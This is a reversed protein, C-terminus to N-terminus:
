AQIEAEVAALMQEARALHLREVMQGQVRIAGRAANEPAAFAEVVARAWAAQEPSPSFAHNCPAVQNPHILTKGDFGFAAAQRCEAEFGAPDELANYVGDLAAIGYARAAAVTLTLAAQIPARDATMAAGMEKCLDNGGVVLAALRTDAAMGAIADLNFLSRCTEVMAWLRTPEPAGDLRSNYRALDGADAIKPVLVADPAARSLAELDDDGWPTDLGNIRVVVERRGFGGEGLAAIVQARATEKAEAAVSDELDLIVVDCALTRSKELARANSGPLYLASRRPRRSPPLPVAAPKPTM